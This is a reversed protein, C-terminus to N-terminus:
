KTHVLKFLIVGAVEWKEEIKSWGFNAIEAKPNSTPQCKEEPLECVVYLQAAVTEDARQPDIGVVPAGDKELFYWYAGEYNREAIVALNFIDEGAELKIKNSVEISRQLQGSAGSRLPSNVLNVYVLFSFSVFLLIRGAKKLNPLLTEVFGGLLLFPAPFFFGYYHDYIEQKYVGLGVLAFFMWVFLMTYGSIENKKLRKRNALLYVLLFLSITLVWIGVMENRGGVLRTSIDGLLEPVNPLANWPRASVTTQRKAFFEYMASANRWGHRADFIVLPSMLFAFVAGAILTYRVLQAREKTKKKTKKLFLFWYVAIVPLVLLGLYHSQLMFAFATVAVLFWKPRKKSYMHWLSYIALLSFFPMINPNWSSKAYIITTPSIAYLFSAVFAAVRGFWDRALYWVLFITLVGLLAVMASPGVPSFNFLLLFPAIMYYYLPGLYMNGISTGPGILIPDFNVLLRRVVIADRGEDGLFTMYESIKYFRFFAGVGLVVFLLLAELKNEEIWKGVKLINRKFNKM